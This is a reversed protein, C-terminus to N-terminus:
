APQLLVAQQVVGDDRGGPIVRDAHADRERISLDDQLPGNGEKEQRGTHDRGLEGGLQETRAGVHVDDWGQQVGRTTAVARVPPDAGTHQIRLGIGKSVIWIAQGDAALGDDDLVLLALAAHRPGTVTKFHNGARLTWGVM